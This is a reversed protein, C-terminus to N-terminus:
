KIFSILTEASRDRVIVLFTRGTGREVGGFVWRGKVYHGWHYKRKRFKSEVIEVAKREGGMM